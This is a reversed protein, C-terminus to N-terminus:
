RDIRLTRFIAMRPDQADASCRCDEQNLDVGCRSCLGRCNESCLPRTPLALIVQERVLPDLNIEEGSYYSLGLEEPRLEETSGSAQLPKPCLVIDFEQAVSLSFDKLCRSCTTEIRGCFSGRFFLERRSRYCVVDVDVLPPFRFERAPGKSFTENLENVSASFQIEKPSEPIEDIPIKM